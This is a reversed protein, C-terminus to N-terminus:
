EAGLWLAPTTFSPLACLLFAFCLLLSSLATAASGKTECSNKGGALMAKIRHSPQFFHGVM